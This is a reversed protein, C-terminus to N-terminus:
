RSRGLTLAELAALLRKVETLRGPSARMLRSVAGTIERELREPESGGKTASEPDRLTDIADLQRRQDVLVGAVSAARAYLNADDRTFRKGPEFSVATIVGVLTDEILMPAAIVASPQGPVAEGREAQRVGEYTPAGIQVEHTLAALGTLGEGVPVRQGALTGESEGSGVTMAFVLERPPQQSRDLVLLSGEEAGVVQAALEILLQLVAQEPSKPPIGLHRALLTSSDTM